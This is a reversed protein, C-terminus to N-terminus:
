GASRVRPHRRLAALGGGSLKVYYANNPVYGLFEVGRLALAKRDAPRDSDFQVIAYSSRNSPAAVAAGSSDLQQSAPDFVGGRLILVSPNARVADIADAAPATAVISSASFASPAALALALAAALATRTPMVPMVIEGPTLRVEAM